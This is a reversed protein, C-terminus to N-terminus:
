PRSSDSRAQLLSRTVVFVSDLALLNAGHGHYRLVGDASILFVWPTRSTLARARPHKTADVAYVSGQWEYEKAFAAATAHPENALLVVDLEHETTLWDHWLGAVRRCHVCTSKFALVVTWRGDSRAFTHPREVGAADQLPFGLVTDWVALSRVRLDDETSSTAEARSRVGLVILQGALVVGLLVSWALAAKGRIAWLEKKM